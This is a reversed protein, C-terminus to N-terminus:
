MFYAYEKPNNNVYVLKSSGCKEQLIQLIEERKEFCLIFSFEWIDHSKKKNDIYGVEGKLYNAYPVLEGIGNLTLVNNKGDYIVKEVKEFSIRYVSLAIGNDKEPRSRYFGYELKEDYM